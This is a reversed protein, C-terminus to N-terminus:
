AKKVKPIKAEFNKIAASSRLMDGTESVALRGTLRQAGIRLGNRIYRSISLSLIDNDIEGYMWSCSPFWYVHILMPGGMPDLVYPVIYLTNFLVHNQDSYSGINGVSEINDLLIRIICINM